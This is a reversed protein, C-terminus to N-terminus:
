SAARAAAFASVASVTGGTHWFVVPGDQRRVLEIAMMLSKATYTRDLLIGDSRLALRALAVENPQAIGFGAGRADSLHVSARRPQAGGLLRSCAVALEFVRDAAEGLPRSVSAGHVDWGVGCSVAGALLGAHTGGSGTAVVVSAPAVGVQALQEQLEAAARAFGLGGVPTAGGRPIVYPRRGQAALSVAHEDLARDVSVRDEQGTFTVRAGCSRAMQLNVTEAGHGAIVLECGLGAGAAAVAVAQCFNSGGAGGTVLVDCDSALAEGLLFELPRAKNGALAFGVLDDRKVWLGDIGFERELGPLRRLPTPLCALRYRPPEDTAAASSCDEAVTIM